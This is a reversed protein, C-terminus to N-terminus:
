IGWCCAILSGPPFQLRSTFKVMLRRETIQARQEQRQLCHQATGQFSSSCPGQPGSRLGQERGEERQCVATLESNWCAGSQQLAKRPRCANPWLPVRHSQAWLYNSPCPGVCGRLRKSKWDRPDAVGAAKPPKDLWPMTTRPVTPPRRSPQDRLSRSELPWVRTRFM